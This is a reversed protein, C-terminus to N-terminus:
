KQLMTTYRPWQKQTKTPTCINLQPTHPIYKAKYVPWTPPHSIHSTSIQDPYSVLRTHILINLWQYVIVELPMIDSYFIQAINYWHNEWSTSQWVLSSSPWTLFVTASESTYRKMIHPLGSAGNHLLTATQHDYSLPLGYQNKLSFFHRQKSELKHTHLIAEKFPKGYSLVRFLQM